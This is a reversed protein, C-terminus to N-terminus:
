KVTGALAVGLTNGLMAFADAIPWVYTFTASLALVVVLAILVYEILSTHRM